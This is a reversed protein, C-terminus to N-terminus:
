AERERERECVCVCLCLTQAHPESLGDGVADRGSGRATDSEEEGVKAELYGRGTDNKEM